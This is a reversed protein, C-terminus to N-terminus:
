SWLGRETSEEVAAILKASPGGRRICAMLRALFVADIETDAYFTLERMARFVDLEVERNWAQATSSISM